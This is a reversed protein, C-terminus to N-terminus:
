NYKELIKYSIFYVFVIACILDAMFYSYPFTIPKIGDIIMIVFATLIIFIYTIRSAKMGIFQAREDVIRKKNSFFQLTVIAFMVLGVYIMWNGISSFGLFETGIGFTSLIIGIVLINFAVAYKWISQEKKNMYHLFYIVIYINQKQLFYIVGTKPTFFIGYTNLSIGRINKTLFPPNGFPLSFLLILM